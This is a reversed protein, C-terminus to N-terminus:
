KTDAMRKLLFQVTGAPKGKSYSTWDSEIQNNSIFKIKVSHMHVDSPKMNSGKLFNFALVKPDKGPQFKMTPQNGAACYHTLVLSGNDLHYMTQMEHDSGPFQTEVLTSGAGTLKYTVNVDMGGAKGSWEGVLKKLQDFAKTSSSDKGAFACAALVICSLTLLKKM